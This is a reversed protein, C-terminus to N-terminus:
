EGVFQPAVCRVRDLRQSRGPHRANDHHGAIARIRGFGDSRCEIEIGNKRVALRGVAVVKFIGKLLNAWAQKGFLRKAGNLPSIKNLKPM